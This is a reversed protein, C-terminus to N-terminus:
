QDKKTAFIPVSIKVENCNQVVCYSCIEKEGIRERKREVGDRNKWELDTYEHGVERVIAIISQTKVCKDVQGGEKARPCVQFEM